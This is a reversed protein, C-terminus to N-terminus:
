GGLPPYVGTVFFVCNLFDRCVGLPYSGGGCWGSLGEWDVLDRCGREIRELVATRRAVFRRPAFSCEGSHANIRFGLCKFVGSSEQYIREQFFLYLFIHIKRKTQFAAQGAIDPM